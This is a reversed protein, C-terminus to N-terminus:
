EQTTELNLPQIEPDSRLDTGILHEKCGGCKVFEPNGLFNYPVNENACDKTTCIITVM